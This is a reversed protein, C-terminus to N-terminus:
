YRTSVMPFMSLAVEIACLVCDERSKIGSSARAEGKVKVYYGYDRYAKPIVSIDVGFPKLISFLIEPDANLRNKMVFSLVAKKKKEPDNTISSRKTATAMAVKYLSDPHSEYLSDWGYGAYNNGHIAM